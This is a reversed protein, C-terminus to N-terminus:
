VPWTKGADRYTEHRPLDAAVIDWDRHSRSFILQNPVFWGSEAGFLGIPLLLSHPARSTAAFLPTACTPCFHRTFDAGSAAPRTFSGTAGVVTVAERDVM